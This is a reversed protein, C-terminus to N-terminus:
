LTTSYSDMLQLAALTGVIVSWSFLVGAHNGKGRGPSSGRGGGGGRGSGGGRSGRGGLAKM